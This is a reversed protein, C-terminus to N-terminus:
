ETKNRRVNLLDKLDERKGLPIIEIIHPQRGGGQMDTLTPCDYQKDYVQGAYSGGTAGNLNGLRKEM